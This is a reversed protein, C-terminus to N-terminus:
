FRNRVVECLLLHMRISSPLAHMSPEVDLNSKVHQVHQPNVDLCLVIRIAM